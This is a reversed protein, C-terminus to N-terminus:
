DEVTIIFNNETGISDKKYDICDLGASMRILRITDTGNKIGQFTWGYTSTCGACNDDVDEILQKDILKISKIQEKKIWCNICCSNESVYLTFTEGKKLVYHAKNSYDKQCSYTLILLFTIGILIFKNKKIM